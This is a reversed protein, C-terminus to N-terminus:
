PVPHLRFRCRKRCRIKGATSLCAGTALVMHSQWSGDANDITESSANAAAPLPDAATVTNAPPPVNAESTTGAGAGAVVDTLGHVTMFSRITPLMALAAKNGEFPNVVLAIGSADLRATAPTSRGAVQLRPPTGRRGPQRLM